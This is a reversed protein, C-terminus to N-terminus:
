LERGVSVSLRPEGGDRLGSLELVLPGVPSDVGASLGWATLREGTPIRWVGGIGGSDVGARLFRGGSIEWRVGLRAVQVQTGSRAQSEVGLFVPHLSGYVASRHAGGLFFRRHAPLGGGSAHGLVIGIDATVRAHVPAYYRAELVAVTFRGREVVDSSGRELRGRVDGGSTPFDIRDLTEHDLLVSAHLIDATVAAAEGTSREAGVQLGLTSGRGAALQFFASGSTIEVGVRGGEEPALTLPAQSWQAEVGIGVGGTVGRRRAVSAGVRTEEGLRLDLRTVSGYGFVNHGTAAFLLAARREDDYRVGLGLRDRPREEVDVTLVVGGAARDLRYRVLRFLGTADLSRIRDELVERGVYSDDPISLERRVLRIARTDDTGTVDTRAIRVSDPLLDSRLVASRPSRAAIARLADEHEATAALGREVWEGVREFELSSIGEVEPLILVDCLARQERTADLMSISALQLLVDVLSALDEATELPDSVDSCIVIDAGLRRADEAPLNRSLAGDVLLRGQLTVPEFAGPVSTSARLAESLVGRRLPVAEGTELDTAVAVFPRPLAAFSRETAGGWTVGEFLRVFNSGVIAGSPLTLRAGDLPVAIIAREDLRRQDLFRRARPVEDSMLAPWDASRVVSEISDVSLGLAYLAGVASGMSTGAVVDVRVGLRELERLVGIHAIGKASGGSLAVGITPEQRARAQAGHLPAPALAVWVAVALAVAPRGAGGRM